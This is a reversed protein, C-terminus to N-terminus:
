GTGVLQPASVGGIEHTECGHEDSWAVCVVDRDFREESRSGFEFAIGDLTLPRIQHTGNRVM